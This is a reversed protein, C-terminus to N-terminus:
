NVCSVVEGDGTCIVCASAEIYTLIAGDGTIEFDARERTLTELAFPCGGQDCVQDCAGATTEIRDIVTGQVVTEIVVPAGAKAAAYDEYDFTATGWGDAGAVLEAGDAGVVGEFAPIHV